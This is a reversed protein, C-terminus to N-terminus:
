RRAEVLIRRWKPNRLDDTAVGHNSSSSHIFYAGGDQFFGLFIGTHGIAGKKSSWFYLRDGPQLQELREVRQGVRAQEAATRPLSMGQHGYLTQVFASCDIGGTLSEGGWKYPTGIYHFSEEIARAKATQATDMDGSTVGSGSAAPLSGNAAPLRGPNTGRSPQTSAGVNAVTPSGDAKPKGATVQYPLQAVQDTPIYGISGDSMVVSFWDPDSTPNIVLYRLR